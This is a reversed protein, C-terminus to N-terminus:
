FLIRGDASVCFSVTVPVVAMGGGGGVNPGVGVSTRSIIKGGMDACRRSEQISGWIALPVLLIVAVGCLVLVRGPWGDDWMEAIFNLMTLQSGTERGGERM